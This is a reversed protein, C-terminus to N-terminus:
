EILRIILQEALEIKLKHSYIRLQETQLLEDETLKKLNTILEFVTTLNVEKLEDASLCNITQVFDTLTPYMM